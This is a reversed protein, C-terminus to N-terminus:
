APIVVFDYMKEIQDRIQSDSYLRKGAQRSGQLIFAIDNLAAQRYTINLSTAKEELSVRWSSDKPLKELSDLRDSIIDPLAKYTPTVERRVRGNLSFILVFILVIIM